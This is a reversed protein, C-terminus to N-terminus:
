FRAAYAFRLVQLMARTQIPAIGEEGSMGSVECLRDAVNRGCLAVRLADTLRAHEQMAGHLATAAAQIAHSMAVRNLNELAIEAGDKVADAAKNAAIQCTLISGSYMAVADTIADLDDCLNQDETQERLARVFLRADKIDQTNM